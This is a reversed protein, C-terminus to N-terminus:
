NDMNNIKVIVYNSIAKGRGLIEINNMGNEFSLVVKIGISIPGYHDFM